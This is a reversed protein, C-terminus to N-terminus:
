NVGGVTHACWQKARRTLSFPFLKWKLTDQAMGAITLCSCLHEFERLHTYPNEDKLRSFSQALEMAIFSPKLEFSSPTIPKSSQPPELFESKPASFKHIPTFDTHNTTTQPSTLITTFSFPYM